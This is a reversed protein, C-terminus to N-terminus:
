GNGGTTSSEVRGTIIGATLFLKPHISKQILTPMFVKTIDINIIDHIAEIQSTQDRFNGVVILCQIKNQILQTPMNHQNMMINYQM